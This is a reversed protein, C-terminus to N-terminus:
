GRTRRITHRGAPHRTAEGSEAEHVFPVPSEVESRERDAEVSLLGYPTPVAGRVWELDGLSPAVRAVGFGPEAPTVGLTRTSLDRTPTASWAHSTTGGYWTESWSSGRWV